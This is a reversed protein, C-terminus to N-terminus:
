FRFRSDKLIIKETELFGFHSGISWSFRSWSVDLVEVRRLCLFTLCCNADYREVTLCTVEEVKRGILSSFTISFMSRQNASICIIVDVTAHATIMLLTPSFYWIVIAGFVSALKDFQKKIYHANITVFLLM